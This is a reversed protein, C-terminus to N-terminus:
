WWSHDTYVPYCREQQRYQVLESCDEYFAPCSLHGPFTPGRPVRVIDEPQVATNAPLPLPTFCFNLNKWKM